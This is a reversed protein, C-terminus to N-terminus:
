GSENGFCKLSEKTISLGGGFVVLRAGFFDALGDLDGFLLEFERERERERKSVITEL